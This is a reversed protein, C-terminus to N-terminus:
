PVAVPGPPSHGAAAALASVPALLAEGAPQMSSWRPDLGPITLRAPGLGDRRRLEWLLAPREGHWRVAYSLHGAHTPADHVEIPQGLWGDPVLTLLALGGPVERVLLNRALSCLEAAVGRRHGDGGCGSGRQPHVLEPWTWTPTAVDLLWRLRGIARRDTADLEVAALRLTALTDLGPQRGPRVVAQGDCFGDRIANVSAAMAPVEGHLLHLPSCAALSGIAAEDIARGAGGPIALTGLREATAAMSAELDSRMVAAWSAAKAAAGDQAAAALLDAGDLLGRLSWFSDWYVAGPMLGPALANARRQRAHRKREIWCVGKTIAPALRRVLDVDGTLRWHQAMAWLVAGNADWQGRRSSLDGDVAQSDAWAVLTEAGEVHFGYHDLAVVVFADDPPPMVGRGTHMLLLYRRNAALADALRGAPLELRMGRRSQAHWGSAAEAASPLKGPLVPQVLRPRRVLRAPLAPQALRLRRTRGSPPDLPIAVRLIAAHALPYMFAAQAMGRRCYLAQPLVDGAQGREVVGASDGHEFTCGAARRPPGPLLLGLQGNVAVTGGSAQIREVRYLGAVNYPRVAFAVAFPVSTQNHIEILLLEDVGGGSTARVAYARHVADGGPVRMATEVVPSDGVLRQRVGADRSPFHWRDDAGIWWDLSWGASGASWPSVLGRQDVIAEHDSALNGLTTWNRATDNDGVVLGDGSLQQELWFPWVWDNGLAATRLVV